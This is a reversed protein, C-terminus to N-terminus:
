MFCISEEKEVPIGNFFFDFLQKSTINSHKNGLKIKEQQLEEDLKRYNVDCTGEIYKRLNLPELNLTDFDIGRDQCEDAILNVGQILSIWRSM